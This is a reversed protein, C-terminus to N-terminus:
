ELYEDISDKHYLDWIPGNNAKLRSAIRAMLTRDYLANKNRSELPENLSSAEPIVASLTKGRTRIIDEYRLIRDPPLLEVYSRCFWSLLHIQRDIRDSIAALQQALEPQMREAEAFRGDRLAFHISSWSALVAVPHRVIGYCRYRQLLEHLLATFPATHKICITFDRSLPKGIHITGRTVLPRRLSWPVLRTGGPLLRGLVRVVAAYKPYNGMPNDPVAGDAHKTIATGASLCSERTQQFFRDISDCITRHNTPDSVGGWLMPECLAVVNPVKNLLHCTLTTGSRPIGTLVINNTM